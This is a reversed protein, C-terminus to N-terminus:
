SAGKIKFAPSAVGSQILIVPQDGGSLGSPVVVNVQYLGIFGPALGSYQVNCNIGNITVVPNTTTWMLNFLGAEVPGLGMAWLTIVNGATATGTVALIAPAFTVIDVSVPTSSSMSGDTNQTKATVVLANSGIPVTDPVWFNIQTPSVYFLLANITQGAFQIQVHAGFCQQPYPYSCALTQPNNQGLNTGYITAWMNPTIGPVFTGGNVVSTIAPAPPVVTVTVTTSANGTGNLAMITYTTTTQPSVTCSNSNGVYTGHCINPNAVLDGDGIPSETVSGANVGVWSLTTTQGSQISSPTAKASITPLPAPVITITVPDTMVTQSPNNPDTLQVSFRGTGLPGFTFTVSNGDVTVCSPNSNLCIPFIEVFVYPLWGGPNNAITLTIPFGPFAETPASSIVPRALKLIVSDNSTNGVIHITSNDHISASGFSTITQGAVTGSAILPKPVVPTSGFPVQYVQTPIPTDAVALGGFSDRIDLLDFATSFGTTQNTIQFLGNVPSSGFQYIEGYWRNSPGVYSELLANDNVVGSCCKSTIQSTLPASVQGSSPDLTRFYGDSTQVIGQTTTVLWTQNVSLNTPLNIKAWSNDTNQIFAASPSGTKILTVITRGDYSFNATFAAFSSSVSGSFSGGSILETKSLDNPSIQWLTRSVGLSDTTTVLLQDDTLYLKGFSAGLLDLDNLLAANKWALDGPNLTYIYFKGDGCKTAAALTGNPSGTISPNKSCGAPLQSDVTAFYGNVLDVAQQQAALTCALTLFLGAM